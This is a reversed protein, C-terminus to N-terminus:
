IKGGYKGNEDKFVKNLLYAAGGSIAGLAVIKWNATDLATMQGIGTLAGTLAAVILGQIADRLNIKFLKSM